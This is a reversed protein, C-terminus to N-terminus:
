VVGSGAGVAEESPVLNRPSPPPACGVSGPCLRRRMHGSRTRRGEDGRAARADARWSPSPTSDDDRAGGVLGPPSPSGGTRRSSPSGVTPRAQGGDQSECRRPASSGGGTGACPSRESRAALLLAARARRRRADTMLPRVRPDRRAPDHCSWAARDDFDRRCARAVQASGRAEGLPPLSTRSLHSNRRMGRGATLQPAPHARREALDEDDVVLALNEVHQRVVKLVLPVDHGLGDVAFLRELANPALGRIQDEEVDRHRSDVPELDEPTETPIM